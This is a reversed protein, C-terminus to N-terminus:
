LAPASVVLRRAAPFLINNELHVHAHLDEEFARLEAFCVRYTTCGDEPVVYGNTLERIRAMAAGTADHDDEMVRIPDDISGFPAAPAPMGNSIAASAAAIYPFLVQEEKMMHTSMERAVEETLLAIEYLEPHRSGHVAALKRTFASLSPLARRVYAHHRNVIHGILQELPWSDFKPAADPVARVRVIAELVEDEDVQQKRCADRLTRKGGCCFDIGLGQFVAATRFDAAVIEGVTTDGTFQM